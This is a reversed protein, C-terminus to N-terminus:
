TFGSLRRSQDCLEQKTGCVRGSLRSLPQDALSLSIPMAAAYALLGCVFAALTIHGPTIFTLAIRAVLDVLRDKWRRLAIDLM